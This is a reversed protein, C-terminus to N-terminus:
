PTTEQRATINNVSDIRGTPYLVVLTTGSSRMVRLLVESSQVRRNM